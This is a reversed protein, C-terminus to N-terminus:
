RFYDTFHENGVGGRSEKIQTDFAEFTKGTLHELYPKVWTYTRCPVGYGNYGTIKGRRAIGRQDEFMGNLKVNM